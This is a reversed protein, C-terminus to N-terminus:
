YVRVYGEDAGLDDGEVAQVDSLYLVKAMTISMEMYALNKGPCGRPGISFPAFASECVAVSEATVGTSEDPIWREPRFFFPDPFIDENHQLSYISVGINTGERVHHNDVTVGGALAERNLDAAVPPNMRLSENIFARLYRCSSLLAGARIDTSSNFTKRIENTLTEYVKPNRTLYFFMAAFTTSTTDAGAVVLLDSEEFLEQQTYGPGGTESDKARFLYHFMDKRVNNEDLGKGQMAKEEDLRDQLCGATFNLFARVEAPTAREMVMDLGRPKLWVWAKVFPTNSIKVMFSAFEAILSPVSKLKDDRPEKINFSRAYCLEGMIDFVLWDSWEAM